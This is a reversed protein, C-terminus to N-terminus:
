PHAVQNLVSNEISEANSSPNPNLHSRIIHEETYRSSVIIFCNIEARSSMKKTKQKLSVGISFHYVFNLNAQGFSM